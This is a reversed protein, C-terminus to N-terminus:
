RSLQSYLAGLGSAMLTALDSEVLWRELELSSSASEIIYLLGTRAFDGVRGEHHVYGILLYFLPFDEKHTVGEFSRRQAAADTTGDGADSGDRGSEAQSIFWVPLIEPQLRIKAAIGFLLEVIEGEADAGLIMSSTGSVKGVFSMLSEAFVHDCLFEEEESDVLTSFASIAERIIGENRSQSAIQSITDFIRSSSAFSICPHPVPTRSEEHLLSTIRQLAARIADITAPDAASTSAHRWTQQISTLSPHWQSTTSYGVLLQGYVKKFRALRQQPNNTSTPKSAPSSGVGGILRAWQLSM